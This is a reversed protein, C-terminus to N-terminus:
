PFRLIEKYNNKDESYIVSFNLIHHEFSNSNEKKQTTINIQYVIFSDFFLKNSFKLTKKM